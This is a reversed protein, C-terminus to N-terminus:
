DDLFRLFRVIAFLAHWLAVSDAGVDVRDSKLLELVFRLYNLM